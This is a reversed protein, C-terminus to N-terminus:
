ANFLCEGCMPAGSDAEFAAIDGCKECPPPVTTLSEVAFYGNLGPSGKFEVLIRTNGAFGVVRGIKGPYISAEVRDGTRFIGNSTLVAM